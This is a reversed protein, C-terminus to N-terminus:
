RTEKVMIEPSAWALTGQQVNLESCAGKDSLIQAMGVDAIKARRDQM